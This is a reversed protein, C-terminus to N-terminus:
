KVGAKEKMLKGVMEALVVANNHATDKASFVLTVNTEEALAAIRILEAQKAPNSLEKIYRKRFEDFKGPEHGFWKRLRDGPALEKLWEDFTFEAKSLGRPWLRDVFIRKGDNGAKQEYARKIRLM